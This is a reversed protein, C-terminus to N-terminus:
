THSPLTFLKIRQILPFNEDVDGPLGGDTYRLEHRHYLNLENEEIKWLATIKKRKTYYGEGDTNNNNYVESRM